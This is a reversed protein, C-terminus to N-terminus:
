SDTKGNWADLAHKANDIDISLPTLVMDNFDNQTLYKQYSEAWGIMSEMADLLDLKPVNDSEYDKAYEQLVKITDGILLTPHSNHKNVKICTTLLKHFYYSHQNKM